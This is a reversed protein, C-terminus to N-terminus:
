YVVIPEEAKKIFKNIDTELGEESKIFKTLYDALNWTNAEVGSAMYYCVPLKPTKKRFIGFVEDKKIERALIELSLGKELLIGIGSPRFHPMINVYVDFKECLTNFSKNAELTTRLQKEIQYGDKGILGALAKGGRVKKLSMFNTQNNNQTNLAVQM